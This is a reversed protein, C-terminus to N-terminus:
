CCTFWLPYCLWTPCNLTAIIWSIAALVLGDMGAQSVYYVIQENLIMVGSVMDAVSLSAIFINTASKRALNFKLIAAITIPNVIIAVINQLMIITVLIQKYLHVKVAPPKGGSETEWSFTWYGGTENDHTPHLTTVEVQM